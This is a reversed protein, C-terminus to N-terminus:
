DDGDGGVGLNAAFDLEAIEGEGIVKLGLLAIGREGRRDFGPAGTRCLTFRRIGAPVLRAMTPGVPEPLDVRTESMGRMSSAAGPETSISPRGM